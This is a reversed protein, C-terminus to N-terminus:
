AISFLIMRNFFTGVAQAPGGAGKSKIGYYSADTM